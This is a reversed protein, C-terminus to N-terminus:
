ILIVCMESYYIIWNRWDNMMHHLSMSPMLNDTSSELILHNFKEM